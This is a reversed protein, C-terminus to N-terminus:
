PSMSTQSGGAAVLASGGRSSGVGCGSGDGRSQTVGFEDARALSFLGHVENDGSVENVVYVEDLVRQSLPLRRRAM